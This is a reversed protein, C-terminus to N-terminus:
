DPISGVDTRQKPFIYLILNRESDPLSFPKSTHYCTSYVPNASTNKNPSRIPTLSRERWWEFFKSGLTTWHLGSDRWCSSTGAKRTDKPTLFMGNDDFVFFPLVFVVALGRRGGSSEYETNRWQRKAPSRSFNLERCKGSVSFPRPNSERNFVRRHTKCVM